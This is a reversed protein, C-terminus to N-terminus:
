PWQAAPRGLWYWVILDTTPPVGGLERLRTANQARHHQSHLASQMLAEARTVQLPPNQFHPIVIKEDLQEPTLSTVYDYEATLGARIADVVSAITPFSDLPPTPDSAGGVVELFIRQVMLMHHLRARLAADHAAPGHALVSRASLADAWARHLLLDSLLPNM